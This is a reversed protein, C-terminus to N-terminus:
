GMRNNRELMRFPMVGSIHIPSFGSQRALPKKVPKGRIFDPKGCGM